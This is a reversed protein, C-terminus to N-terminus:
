MWGLVERHALDWTNAKTKNITACFSTYDVFYASLKPVGIVKGLTAHAAHEVVTTMTFYECFEVVM